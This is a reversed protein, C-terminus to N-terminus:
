EEHHDEGDSAAGGPSSVTIVRGEDASQRALLCVATVDLTAERGILAEGQGRAHDLFDRLPTRDCSVRVPRTGDNDGNVLVVSEPRVEMVGKTGVVRVWDDGHTPANDPRFVDISVSAARGDCLGLHCLAAREMTGCGENHAASHSAYVSTVKHGGLWLVWDIAHSGVWPITGGYTARDNYFPERKGLKYSKRADIMRVDGIEGRRILEWAAYFGADYRSFMMGALHVDRHRASTEALRSLEDFTLAAPKETLVHIGREIADICM